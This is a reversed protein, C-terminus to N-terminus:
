KTNREFHLIWTFAEPGEGIRVHTRTGFTHHAAHNYENVDFSGDSNVKTIYAVHGAYGSMRQAIAGVAPTKDVPIGAGNAAAYWGSANGFHQSRWDNEFNTYSTTTRVMWAAYSVCEGWYFQQPDADGPHGHSNWYALYTDVGAKGNSGPVATDTATCASPQFNRRIEALYDKIAPSVNPYDLLGGEGANHAIVLQDLLPLKMGPRDPYKKDWYTKLESERNKFYIGAYHAFTMPDTIGKPTGGPNDGQPYVKHWEERNLQFIDWTGGNRDTAFAVPNFDSERSAVAALWGEPLGSTKAAEAIWPKARAPVVVTGTGCITSDATSSTPATPSLVTIFLVVLALPLALVATGGGAIWKTNM